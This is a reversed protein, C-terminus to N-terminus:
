LMSVIKFAFCAVNAEVLLIIVPVISEPEIVPRVPVVIVTGVIVLKLPLCAVNVEDLLTVVPVILEPM